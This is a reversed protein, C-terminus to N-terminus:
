AFNVQALEQAVKKIAGQIKTVQVKSATKSGAVYHRLLSANLGAFKAIKSIKLYSFVEFFSTLDYSIEFCVNDKEVEHFDFLLDKMQLQLQELNNASEVLLNDDYNVRGWVIGDKANEIVLNVKEM